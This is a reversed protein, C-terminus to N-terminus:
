SLMFPPPRSFLQNIAISSTVNFDHYVFVQKYIHLELQEINYEQVPAYLVPTLNQATTYDCVVCSSTHEDHEDEHFLAHLGAMKM